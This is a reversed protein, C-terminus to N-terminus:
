IHTKCRKVLFFHVSYSCTKDKEHKQMCTTDNSPCKHVFLDKDLNLIQCSNYFIAITSRILFQYLFLQM